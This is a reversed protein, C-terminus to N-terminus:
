LFLYIFFLLLLLFLSRFSSGVPGFRPWFLTAWFKREQTISLLFIKNFQNKMDTSQMSDIEGMVWSSGEKPM